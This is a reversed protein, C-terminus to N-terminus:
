FSSSFHSLFSERGALSAKAWPHFIDKYTYLHNHLDVCLIRVFDEIATEIGAKEATPSRKKLKSQDFSHRFLSSEKKQECRVATAIQEDTSDKDRTGHRHTAHLSM